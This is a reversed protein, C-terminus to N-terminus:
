ADRTLIGICKQQTTDRDTFLSIPPSMCFFLELVLVLSKTCWSSIVQPVLQYSVILCNILRTLSAFIGHSKKTDESLYFVDLFDKRESWFNRLRTVLAKM